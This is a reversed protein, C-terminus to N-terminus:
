GLETYGARARPIALFVATRTSIYGHCEQQMDVPATLRHRDM